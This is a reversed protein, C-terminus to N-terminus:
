LHPGWYINVSLSLAAQFFQFLGSDPGTGVKSLLEAGLSLLSHQSLTNPTLARLNKSHAIKCYVSYVKWDVHVTNNRSLAWGQALAWGGIKVTRHNTLDETYGGVICFVQTAVRFNM